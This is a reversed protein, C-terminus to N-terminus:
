AARERLSEVNAQRAILSAFSSQRMGRQLQRGTVWSARDVARHIAVRSDSELIELAVKRGDELNVQVRCSKDNGSRAETVASLCIHVSDIKEEHVSFAAEVRRRAFNSLSDTAPLAVYSVDTKM